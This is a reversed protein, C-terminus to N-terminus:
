FGVKTIMDKVKKMLEAVKFKESVVSIPQLIISDQTSLVILKTGEKINMAQRIDWPIIIQGKSSVRTMGVKM